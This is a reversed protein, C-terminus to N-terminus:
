TVARLPCALPLRWGLCDPSVSQWFRPPFSWSSTMTSAWCNRLPHLVYSEKLGVTRAM